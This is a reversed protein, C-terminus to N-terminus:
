PGAIIQHLDITILNQETKSQKYCKRVYNFVKIQTIMLIDQRKDLEPLHM